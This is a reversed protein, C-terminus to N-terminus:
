GGGLMNAQSSMIRHVMQPDLSLAFNQMEMALAALEANGSDMMWALQAANIQGQLGLQALGNNLAAEYDKRQLGFRQAELDLRREAIGLREDDLALNRLDRQWGAESSERDLRAATIREDRQAAINDLDQSHFPAFFAGRATYDSTTDRQDIRADREYGGITNQLARDAINQVAAIFDRSVNNGRYGLGIEERDLGLGAQNLNLNAINSGHQQQLAQQQLALSQADFGAMQQNQHQNQMWQAVQPGYVLNTYAAISNAVNGQQQQAIQRNQQQQAALGQGTGPQPNASPGRLARGVAGGFGQGTNPQVTPTSNPVQNGVNWAIGDPYPNNPDSGRRAPVGGGHGSSAQIQQTLQRVTGQPDRLWSGSTTGLAM